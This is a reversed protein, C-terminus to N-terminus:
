LSTGLRFSVHLHPPNGHIRVFSVMPLKSLEAAAKQMNAMPGIFDHAGGSYHDSNPSRDKNLPADLDRWQGLGQLGYAQMVLPAYAAVFRARAGYWGEGRRAAHANGRNNPAQTGRRQIGDRFQGGNPLPAAGSQWQDRATNYVGVANTLMRAEAATLGLASANTMGTDEDIVSSLWAVVTDKSYGSPLLEDFMTELVSQLYQARDLPIGTTRETLWESAAARGYGVADTGLMGDLADAYAKDWGLAASADRLDLMAKEANIREIQRQVEQQREEWYARDLTEADEMERLFSAAIAETEATGVGEIASLIRQTMATREDVSTTYDDLGETALEEAAKAAIDGAGIKAAMAATDDTALDGAATIGQAAALGADVIGQLNREEIGSAFEQAKENKEGFRLRGSQFAEAMAAKSREISAQLRRAEALDGNLLARQLASEQEQIARQAEIYGLDGQLSAEMQAQWRGMFDEVYDEYGAQRRREFNAARNAARAAGSDFSPFDNPASGFLPSGPPPPYLSRDVYSPIAPIPSPSTTEGVDPRYYSPIPM